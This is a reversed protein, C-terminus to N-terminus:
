KRYKGGNVKLGVKWAWGIRRGVNYYSNSNISFLIPDLKKMYPYGKRMFKKSSYSQVVEGIYIVSGNNLDITNVLSCEINVPTEVILPATKLEGYFVKFLAAKDITNGSNMGVFDTIRLMRSNPINISFTKNERIGKNTTHKNILTVSIMPPTHQVVGIYSITLFNPSGDVLSGVIVTPMPYIYPHPGLKIKEM